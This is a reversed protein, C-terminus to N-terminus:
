LLEGLFARMLVFAVMISIILTIALPLALCIAGIIRKKM